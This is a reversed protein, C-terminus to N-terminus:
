STPAAPRSKPFREDSATKAAERDFGQRILFHFHQYWDRNGGGRNAWRGSNPRYSQGRWTEPGGAAPGPPGREQWRVGAEEAAKREAAYYGLLEPPAEAAKGKGGVPPVPAKAIAKATARAAAKSKAFAGIVVDPQPSSGVSPPAAANLEASAAAPQPSSGVSPPAAANLEASAAPASSSSAATTNTQSSAQAAQRSALAETKLKKWPPEVYPVEPVDPKAMAHHLLNVAEYFSCEEAFFADLAM